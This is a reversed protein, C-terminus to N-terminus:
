EDLITGRMIHIVNSSNLWEKVASVERDLIPSDTDRSLFVDVFSEGIPLWRWMMAHMYSANWTEYLHRPLRNANCFDVNDFFIGSGSKLCEIPCINSSDVTDDFYVRM